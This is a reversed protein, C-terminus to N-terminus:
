AALRYVSHEVRDFPEARLVQRVKEQWWPTGSPRKPAVARYIDALQARGGLEALAEIVAQRWVSGGHERLIDQTRQPMSSVDHMERYLAFGSMLRKRDKSFIAFVLPKTILQDGPAGGFITRPLMESFLSWDENWRVVRSPTQFMYAPLIFGVRGEHPLLQLSRELFREVVKMEFPPNGIVHTPLADLAVQTFDGELIDRGTAARAARAWRPDIEVGIAPVHAPLAQLFAGAGCSPEVVLSNGDLEPFHREVLQEAVWIPTFYQGLAKRQEASGNDRAM